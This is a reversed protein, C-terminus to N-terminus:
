VATCPRGAFQSGKCIDYSGGINIYVSFEERTGHKSMPFSEGCEVLLECEWVGNWM